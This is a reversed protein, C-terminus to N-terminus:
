RFIAGPYHGLFYRYGPGVQSTSGFSNGSNPPAQNPYSPGPNRSTSYNQQAQGGSYGSSTSQYSMQNQYDNQYGSNPDANGWDHRYMPPNSISSTGHAAPSHGTVVQNPPYQTVHQPSQNQQYPMMPRTYGDNSSHPSPNSRPDIDMVNSNVPPQPLPQSPGIQSRREHTASDQYAAMADQHSPFGGANNGTPRSNANQPPQGYGSDYRTSRSGGRDGGRDSRRDTGRRDKEREWFITDRRLDEIM